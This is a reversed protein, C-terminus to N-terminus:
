LCEEYYREKHVYATQPHIKTYSSDRSSCTNENKLQHTDNKLEDTDTDRQLLIKVAMIGITAAPNIGSSGVKCGILRSIERTRGKPPEAHNLVKSRGQMHYLQM